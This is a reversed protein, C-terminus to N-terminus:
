GEEITKEKYSKAYLEKYMNEWQNVETQLVRNNYKLERNENKLNRVNITLYDRDDKITLIDYSTYALLVVLGVTCIVFLALSIGFGLLWAFLELILVM